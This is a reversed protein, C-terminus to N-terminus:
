GKLKEALAAQLAQLEAGPTASAAGLYNDLLSLALRKRGTQQAYRILTLADSETAPAFGPAVAIGADALSLALAPQKLELMVPMLGRLLRPYERPENWRTGAQLLAHVDGKLHEPAAARFWRAAETTARASERVRLDKYLGDFVQQRQARRADEERQAIREPSNRPEFDLERRRIYLAGGVGAYALLLLMEISAVILIMSARSRAVLLGLGACALVFVVLAPYWPGFGRMIRALEGPHLAHVAHGTTACAGLSAPFLLAAFVLAPWRPVDPNFYLAVGIAVALAPHVWARADQFATAMELSATQSERVGNAADDIMVLAYQTLWVLILWIAAICMVIRILDGGIFIGLLVSTLAVFLLSQIQFPMALARLLDRTDNRTDHVVM